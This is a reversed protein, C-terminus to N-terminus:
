LCCLSVGCAPDDPAVALEQTEPAYAGPDPPTAAPYGGSPGPGSPGPAPPAPNGGAPSPLGPQAPGQMGAGPPTAAGANPMASAAKGRGLCWWGQCDPKFLPMNTDVVQPGVIKGHAPWPWSVPHSQMPLAIERVIPLYGHALAHRRYSGGQTGLMRLLSAIGPLAPRQPYSLRLALTNADFISVHSHPGRGQPWGRARAAADQEPQYAHNIAALGHADAPLGEAISADSFDAYAAAPPSLVEIRWPARGLTQGREDLAAQLSQAPARRAPARGGAFLPLLAQEFAAAMGDPRAHDAVGARAAELLALSLAQRTHLWAALEVAGLGALLLPVAM